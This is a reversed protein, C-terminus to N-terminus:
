TRWDLVRGAVLQALARGGDLALLDTNGGQFVALTREDPSIALVALAQNSSCVVSTASAGARGVVVEHLTRKVLPTHIERTLSGAAAGDLSILRDQLRPLVPPLKYDKTEAWAAHDTSIFEREAAFRVVTPPNGGQVVNVTRNSSDSPSPVVPFDVLFDGGSLVTMQSAADRVWAMSWAEVPATGPPDLPSVFRLSLMGPKDPANSVLFAVLRRDPSVAAAEFAPAPTVPAASPSPSGGGSPSETPASVPSTLTGASASGSPTAPLLTQRKPAYDVLRRARGLDGDAFWLVSGSTWIIAGEIQTSTAVGAHCSRPLPDRNALYVAGGIPVLLGVLVALVLLGVRSNVSRWGLGKAARALM